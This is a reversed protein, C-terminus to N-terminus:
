VAARISNEPLRPHPERIQLANGRYSALGVSVVSTFSILLLLITSSIILADNASHAAILNHGLAELAVEYTLLTDPHDDVLLINAKNV